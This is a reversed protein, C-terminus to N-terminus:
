RRWPPLSGATPGYQACCRPLERPDVVAAYSSKPIPALAGRLDVTVDRPAKGTQVAYRLLQGALRLVQHATTHKGAKEIPRVCELVDQATIEVVPRNDLRALYVLQSARREQTAAAQKSGHM